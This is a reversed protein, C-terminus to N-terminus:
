KGNVQFDFCLISESHGELIWWIEWTHTNWIKITSDLSGCCLLSKKTPDKKSNFYEISAIVHIESEFVDELSFFVKFSYCFFFVLDNGAAVVLYKLENSVKLSTKEVEKGEEYTESKQAKLELGSVKSKEVRSIQDENIDEYEFPGEFAEIATLSWFKRVDVAKGVEVNM